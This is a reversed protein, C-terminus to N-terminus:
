MNVVISYSNVSDEEAICTTSHIHGCDCLFFKNMFCPDVIPLLNSSFSPFSVGFLLSAM